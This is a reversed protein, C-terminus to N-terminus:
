RIVYNVVIIVSDPKNTPTFRWQRLTKSAAEDLIKHGSSRLLETGTSAGKASINIRVIAAGQYGLFIAMDPYEPSPNHEDSEPFNDIAHSNKPPSHIMTSSVTQVSRSGPQTKVAMAVQQRPQTKIVQELAAFDESKNPEPPKKEPAKKPATKTQPAASQTAAPPSPTSAPSSIMSVELKFPKAASAQAPQPQESRQYLRYVLLHLVLVILALFFLVRGSVEPENVPLPLSNTTTNILKM